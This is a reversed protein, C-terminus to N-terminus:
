FAGSLQEPDCTARCLSPNQLRREDTHGSKRLGGAKGGARVEDDSKDDLGNASAFGRLDPVTKIDWVLVHPM